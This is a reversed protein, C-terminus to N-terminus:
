LLCFCKNHIEYIIDKINGQIYEKGIDDKSIFKSRLLDILEQEIIDLNDLRVCMTYLVEGGKGYNGLRESINNSTKGIKYIDLQQSQFERTRILYISGYTNINKEIPTEVQKKTKITIINNGNVKFVTNLLGTTKITNGDYLYDVYKLGTKKQLNKLVDIILDYNYIYIENHNEFKIPIMQKLEFTLNPEFLELDKIKVKETKVKRGTEWDTLGNLLYGKVYIKLTKIINNDFIYNPYNEGLVEFYIKKLDLISKEFNIYILINSINLNSETDILISDDSFKDKDNLRKTLQDNKLM